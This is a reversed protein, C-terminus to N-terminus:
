RYEGGNSLAQLNALSSDTPLGEDPIEFSADTENEIGIWKPDPDWAETATGMDIEPRETVLFGVEGFRTTPRSLMGALHNREEWIRVRLPQTEGDVTTAFEDDTLDTAHLAEYPESESADRSELEDCPVSFGALDLRGNLAGNGPGREITGSVPGGLKHTLTDYTIGSVQVGSGATTRTAFSGVTIGAGISKLVTRRNPSDFQRPM